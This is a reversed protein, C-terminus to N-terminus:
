DEDPADQLPHDFSVTEAIQRLVVRYHGAKEVATTALTLIAIRRGDPCPVYATIQLLQRGAALGTGPPGTLRTQVLSAPGCPLDLPEIHEADETCTVARAALVSRPAWDTARWALTFLSLLLGGDGEDDAHVGLCCHITGAELLLRAMRLVPGLETVFRQRAADDPFADLLPGLTDGPAPANGPEALERLPLPVFGKPLAFWIDADESLASEDIVYSTESM